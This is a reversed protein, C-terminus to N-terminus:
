EENNSFIARATHSPSSGIALADVPESAQSLVASLVAPVQPFRRDKDSISDRTWLFTASRGAPERGTQSLYTLGSAMISVEKHDIEAISLAVFLEELFPSLQLLALFAM